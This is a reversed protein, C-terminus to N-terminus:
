VSYDSKHFSALVVVAEECTLKLKLYIIDDQFPCLYVDFPVPSNEFSVTTKFAEKSISSICECIEKQSFGEDTTRKEVSRAAFHVKGTSAAVIVSSIDHFPINVM